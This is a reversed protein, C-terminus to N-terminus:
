LAQVQRQLVEVVLLAVGFLAQAQRQGFHRHSRQLEREVTRAGPGVIDRHHLQRLMLAQSVELVVDAVCQQSGAEGKEDTLLTPLRVDGDRSIGPASCAGSGQFGDAPRCGFEVQDARVERERKAM